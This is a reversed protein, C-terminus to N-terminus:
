EVCIMNIKHKIKHSFPIHSLSSILMNRLYPSVVPFCTTKYLVRSWGRKIFFLVCWRKIFIICSKQMMDANLIGDLLQM